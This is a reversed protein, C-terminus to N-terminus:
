NEDTGASGLARKIQAQTEKESEVYKQWQIDAVARSWSAFVEALQEVLAM